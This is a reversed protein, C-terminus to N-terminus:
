WPLTQGLHFYGGTPGDADLLALAVSTHAGQTVEMPANAGGMDTKVHGPHGAN